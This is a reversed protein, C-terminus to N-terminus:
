ETLHCHGDAVLMCHDHTCPPLSVPTYTQQTQIFATRGQGKIANYWLLIGSVASLILGLCFAGFESM